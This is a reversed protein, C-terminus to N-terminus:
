RSDGPKSQTSPPTTLYAQFTRRLSDALQTQGAATAQAIAKEATARAMAPRGSAAYVRVLTGIARANGPSLGCAQEALTVAKGPDRWRPDTATAYVMALRDAPEWWDPRCRM